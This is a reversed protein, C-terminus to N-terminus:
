VECEGGTEYAERLKDAVEFSLKKGAVTFFAQAYEPYLCSLGESGELVKDALYKIEETSLRKLREEFDKEDKSHHNAVPPLINMYEIEIGSRLMEDLEPVMKRLIRRDNEDLERAM